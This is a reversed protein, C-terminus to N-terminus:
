FSKQIDGKLKNHIDSLKEIQQAHVKGLYKKKLAFIIDMANLYHGKLDRFCLQKQDKPVVRGQTDSTEGSCLLKEEELANEIAKVTLNFNEEYKSEKEMDLDQLKQALGPIRSKLGENSGFGFFDAYASTSLLFILIIRVM